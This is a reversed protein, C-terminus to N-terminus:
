PTLAGVRVGRGEWFRREEEALEECLVVRLRGFPLRDARRDWFPPKEQEVARRLAKLEAATGHFVTPRAWVASGVLSSPDPALLIAAGHVTAWSFFVRDAWREPARGVVVIERGEGGIELRDVAAILEEQTVEREVMVGGAPRDPFALDRAAEWSPLSIHELFEPGASGALGAWARAGRERAQGPDTM